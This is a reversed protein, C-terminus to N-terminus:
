FPAFLPPLRVAGEKKTLLSLINREGKIEQHFIEEKRQERQFGPGLDKELQQKQLREM